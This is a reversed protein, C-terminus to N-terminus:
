SLRIVVREWAHVVIFLWFGFLFFLLLSFAGKALSGGFDIIAETSNVTVIFVSTAEMIENAYVSISHVMKFPWM